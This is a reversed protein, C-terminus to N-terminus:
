RPILEAEVSGAQVFFNDQDEPESSSEDFPDLSIYVDDEAVFFKAQAVVQAGWVGSDYFGYEQIERFTLVITGFQSGPRGELKIRVVTMDAEDGIEVGRITTDVIADEGSLAKAVAVGELKV